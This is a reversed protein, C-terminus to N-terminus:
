AGCATQNLWGNRSSSTLINTDKGNHIFLMIRNFCQQSQFSGHHPIGVQIGQARPWSAFCLSHWGTLVERYTNGFSCHLSIRISRLQRWASHILGNTARRTLHVPTPLHHHSTRSCFLALFSPERIPEQLRRHSYVLPFHIPPSTSTLHLSLIATLKGRRSSDVAYM